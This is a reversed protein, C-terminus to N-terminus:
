WSSEIRQKLSPDQELSIKRIFYAKSALALDVDHSDVTGSMSPRLWHFNSYGAMTPSTAPELEGFLTHRAWSTNYVYTPIVVEDPAYSNKLYRFKGDRYAAVLEVALKRPIATWQSGAAHQLNGPLAPECVRAAKLAHRTLAAMHRFGKKRLHGLTGDLWHSRTVREMAMTPTPHERLSYGRCLVLPADELLYHAFEELPRLPLCQGSLFVFREQRDTTASLALELTELMAEVVSYGGWHLCRCRKSVTVSALALSPVDRLLRSRAQLDLHVFTPAPALEQLLADLTRPAEHALVVYAISDLSM